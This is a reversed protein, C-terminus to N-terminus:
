EEELEPIQSIRNCQASKKKCFLTMKREVLRNRQMLEEMTM